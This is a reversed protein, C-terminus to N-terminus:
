RDEKKIYHYKKTYQAKAKYFKSKESFDVEIGLKYCENSSTAKGDTAVYYCYKLRQAKYSAWNEYGKATKSGKPEFDNITLKKQMASSTGENKSKRGETSPQSNTSNENLATIVAKAIIEALELKEKKSLLAMLNGGSVWRLHTVYALRGQETALPQVRGLFDLSSIPLFNAFNWNQFSLSLVARPTSLVLSILPKQFDTMVLNIKVSVSFDVSLTQLINEVLFVCFFVRSEGPRWM